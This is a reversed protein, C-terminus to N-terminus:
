PRREQRGPARSHAAQFIVAQAGAKGMTCEDAENCAMRQSMTRNAIMSKGQANSIKGFGGNGPARSHAAQFVVAQAGAKGMTCEDAENCVSRMSKTRNGILSKGKANNIKGFTGHGPARSAAAKAIAIQAATKSMGQAEGAENFSTRAAAAGRGLLSQGRANNLKSFGNGTGRSQGARDIIAQADRSSMRDMDTGRSREVGPRDPKGPAERTQHERPPRHGFAPLAALSLGLLVSIFIRGRM